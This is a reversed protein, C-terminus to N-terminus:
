WAAKAAAALLLCQTLQTLQQQQLRTASAIIRSAMCRCYCKRGINEIYGVSILLVTNSSCKM